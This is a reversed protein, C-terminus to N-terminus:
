VMGYYKKTRIVEVAHDVMPRPYKKIPPHAEKFWTHIITHSTNRLEPIWRKIYGAEPDYKKQQQWPNFIRFYPQASAGTSAVWQWNGNNVAPDYDALKQAFYKEGWQWDIHLDKILFSATIMRVRNHMFGTANLERMGADVIPFGTEGACWKAFKKKDNEWWLNNYKEHYASGFVFPSHYLIYTYFDRWFLQRILEHQKDFLKEVAHYMERASVTGFKLHTSLYTTAISPYNKDHAYNKQNKIMRLLQLGEKRGGATNILPNYTYLEELMSLPKACQIPKSFFSVSRPLKQPMIIPLSAAKKAYATFISYPTGNNSMILTPQHLLTDHYSFVACANQNCTHYIAEDRKFSFSTYDKNFFVANINEQTILQEIIKEPQGYFIFFRGNRQKIEAALEILSTIMFQLANNSRYLNQTGVQRPDIIFCLIVHESTAIAQNLATNDQLRLDRRFIFLSKKYPKM